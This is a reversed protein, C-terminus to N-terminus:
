NVKFLIIHSNELSALFWIYDDMVRKKYKMDELGLFILAVM